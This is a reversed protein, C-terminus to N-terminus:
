YNSILLEKIKGRSDAQCNIMRNADVRKIKYSSYIEDFFNDESNINKPDSNSVLIKAGKKNIREVFGALEIQKEHHTM